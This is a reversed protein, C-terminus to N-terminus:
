RLTSYFTICSAITGVAVGVILFIVSTSPDVGIQQLFYSGSGLLQLGFLIPIFEAFCVIATRRLQPQKFCDIFREKELGAHERESRIADRLQRIASQAAEGSSHLRKNAKLAAAEKGKRYLWAPSEPILIAVLTLLGSFPWQTAFCLRYASNEESDIVTFCVLAGVLQGLLKFIPLLAMFPSCISSYITLLQKRSLVSREM